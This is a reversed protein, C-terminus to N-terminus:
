DDDQEKAVVWVFGKAKPSLITKEITTALCFDFLNNFYATIIILAILKSDTKRNM